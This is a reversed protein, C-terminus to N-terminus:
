DRPSHGAALAGAVLALALALAPADGVVSYLTWVQRAPITAVLVRDNEEWPSLTARFRGQPDIAASTAARVSRLISFGGEIARVRAMETHQPDIGPWDSSPLLVVGAGQRAHARALSPSDYDYCLAGAARGWPRDYARLPETGAIAPEGLPLFHKAYREVQAGEPGFWRYVNEYRLPQRSRVIGYAAVLDVGHSRAFAAARAVLAGEEDPEVLTAVENWVVVRAGRSVALESREFLLAEAGRLQEMSTLQAPFDVTVAAVRVTPGEGAGAIRFTGFGIASVTAAAAIAAHRWPRRPAPTLLLVVAAATPWAIALTVLGLGGLSAVQLLAMNTSHNVALSAWHGAPTLAVGVWDALVILGALAHIAWGAPVRRRVVDWGALTVFTLTGLPIGYALAFAYSVPATVIKVAPLAAAAACLLWLLARGRVGRLRAAVLALPVPAAWALFEIGARWTGLTALVIATAVLAWTPFRDAIADGALANWAAGGIPTSRSTEAPIAPMSPRTALAPREM